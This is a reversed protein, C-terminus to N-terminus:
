GAHIILVLPPLDSIIQHTIVTAHGVRCWDADKGSGICLCSAVASRSCAVINICSVHKKPPSKTGSATWRNTKKEKGARVLANHQKVCQGRASFERARRSIILCYNLLHRKMESVKVGVNFKTVSMEGGPNDTPASLHFTLVSAASAASPYFSGGAFHGM